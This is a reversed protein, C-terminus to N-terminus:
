WAPKVLEEESVGSLLGKVLEDPDIVIGGPRRLFVESAMFAEGEEVPMNDIQLEVHNGEPDRYYLSTTTGHNMSLVPRIGLAALRGYNDLLDGLKTFTFAIHSLGTLPGGVIDLPNVGETVGQPQVPASAMPPVQGSPKGGRTSDIFAIRHHEEDYSLFVGAPGDHVVRADLVKLYWETMDAVRETNLM